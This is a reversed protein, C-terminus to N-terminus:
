APLDPSSAQSDRRALIRANTSVPALVASSQYQIPFAFTAVFALVAVSAFVIALRLRHRRFEGLLEALLLRIGDNGSDV